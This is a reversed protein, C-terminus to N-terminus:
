GTKPIVRVAGSRTLPGGVWVVKGTLSEPLPQQTSAARTSALLLFLLSAAALTSPRMMGVGELLNASPTLTAPRSLPQLCGALPATHLAPHSPRATEPLATPQQRTHRARRCSTSPWGGGTWAAFTLQSLMRSVTSSTTSLGNSPTM